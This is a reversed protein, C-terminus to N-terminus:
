PTGGKETLKKGSVKRFIRTRPPGPPPVGGVSLKRAQPKQVRGEKDVAREREERKIRIRDRKEGNERTEREKRGRKENREM